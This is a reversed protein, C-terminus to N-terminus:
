EKVKETDNAWQSLFDPENQGIIFDLAFRALVIMQGVEDLRSKDLISKEPGKKHSSKLLKEFQNAANGILQDERNKLIDKVVSIANPNASYRKTKKGDHEAILLGYQELESLAPSVLAKSVGLRKTLDAGSLLQKSLYVQCWIQGHIRRFGWYRIFDGVSDSFSKLLTLELDDIKSITSQKKM